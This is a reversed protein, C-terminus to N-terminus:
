IAERETHAGREDDKRNNPQTSGTGIRSFAAAIGPALYQAIRPGAAWAAFATVMGALVAYAHPTVEAPSLVDVAVTALTFLVTLWLLTRASSRSGQEDTLLSM